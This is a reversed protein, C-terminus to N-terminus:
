TSLTNIGQDELPRILPLVAARALVLWPYSSLFMSTQSLTLSISTCKLIQNLMQDISRSDRKITRSKRYEFDFLLSLLGELVKLFAKRKCQSGESRNLM